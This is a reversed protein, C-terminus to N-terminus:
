ESLSYSDLEVTRSLYTSFILLTYEESRIIGVNPAAWVKALTGIIPVHVRYYHCDFTGAPVTIATSVSEVTVTAQYLGYSESATAPYKLLLVEPNSVSDTLGWLGDIKNTTVSTDVGATDTELFYWVYDDILTDGVIIGTGTSTGIVSGSSNYETVITVWQNGLALPVITTDASDEVCGTPEPGGKFAYNIIFVGDGINVEDDNNADGAEIPDPAPGGNFVYNILYVTDGINVEGDGNADGCVINLIGAFLISASMLIILSIIAIRM